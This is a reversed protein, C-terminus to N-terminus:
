CLVLYSSSALCGVSVECDGRYIGYTPASDLGMEM